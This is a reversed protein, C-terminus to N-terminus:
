EDDFRWAIGHIGAHEFAQRSPCARFYDDATTEAISGIDSLAWGAAALAQAALRQAQTADATDVWISVGRAARDPGDLVSAHIFLM